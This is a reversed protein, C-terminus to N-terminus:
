EMIKPLGSALADVALRIRLPLHPTELWLAHSDLVLGPYDALVRKLAGSQLRDRILWCPLYALGAGSVAADAIAELDDLRLRSKPIIEIPGGDQRPFLWPCTRGARSYIVLRHTELDQINRPAGHEELYAPSACVTMRQHVIRRCVLGTGEGVPGNRIALDFGDEMLDIHRDSFSLELELAPHQKALDLLIPAVCRRGFIAPMSVRLPGRPTGLLDGAVADAAEAEALVLKCRDYYVRGFETLSQRRTTRNILRLGLRDELFRVHKGVMPASLGFAEAAAAFSGVEAVKAFVSMSTLRDM